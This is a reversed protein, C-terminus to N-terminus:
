GRGDILDRRLINLQRIPANGELAGTGIALGQRELRAALEMRYKDCREPLQNTSMSPQALLSSNRAFQEKFQKEVKTGFQGELSSFLHRSNISWSSARSNLGSPVNSSGCWQCVYVRSCSPKKKLCCCIM